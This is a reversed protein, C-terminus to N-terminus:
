NEAPTYLAHGQSDSLLMHGPTSRWVQMHLVIRPSVGEPSKPANGPISKEVLSKQRYSGAQQYSWAATCRMSNTKDLPGLVSSMAPLSFLSPWEGSNAGQKEGAVRRWCHVSTKESCWTNGYLWFNGHWLLNLGTGPCLCFCTQKRPSKSCHNEGGAWGPWIGGQPFVTIVRHRVQCRSRTKDTQEWCELWTM